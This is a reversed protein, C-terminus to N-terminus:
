LRKLLQDLTSNWCGEHRGRMGEDPFLTHRVEVETQGPSVARFFVSVLTEKGADVDPPEPVWTFILCQEPQVTLFRGRLLFKSEPWTFHFAYRGGERLDYEVIDLTVNDYPRFWQRLHDPQTWARYVRELLHPYRRIVQVELPRPTTPM